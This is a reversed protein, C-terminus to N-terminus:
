STTPMSLFATLNYTPQSTHKYNHTSPQTPNCTHNSQLIVPTCPYAIPNCIALSHTNYTHTTLSTWLAQM